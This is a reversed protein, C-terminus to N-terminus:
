DFLDQVDGITLHSSEADGGANERDKMPLFVRNYAEALRYVDDERYERPVLVELNYSKEELGRRMVHIPDSVTLAFHASYWFVYALVLAIIIAFYQLNRTARQRNLPKLDVFMLLGAEGIVVYDTATFYTDYRDQDHRSYLVDGDREIALVGTMAEAYRRIEPAPAGQDLTERLYHFSQELRHQYDSELNNVPLFAGAAALVVLAAVILTVSLTSVTAVHRQAMVSEANKIKRFIKLARLLRLVRAVRIAKVVKLINLTGGVGGVALGGALVGLAAPGSNLLLLPVSALLDIWGRELWFYDGFRRRCFSEYGRVLFEATFFVDFALGAFLLTHRVPVSWDLILALDELFTQILVAVIALVVLSELLSRMRSM